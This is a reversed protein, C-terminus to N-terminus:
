TEFIGRYEQMAELGLKSLIKETQLEGKNRTERRDVLGICIFDAIVYVYGIGQKLRPSM